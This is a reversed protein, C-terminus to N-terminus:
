ILTQYPTAVVLLNHKRSSTLGINEIMDLDEPGVGEPLKWDFNYLLHALALEVTALGFMMGPCMRRGSGFPLYRFDGGTFDVTEDQFREPEFMEPHKWFRPDRHMAWMNVMVKMGAPITYGNIKCAERSARPLLPVPPHLRLAEKIVLKLYKLKHLDDEGLFAAGGQRVEAQAKAMVKPNRMLEAMTWDLTTSSTETGASFM